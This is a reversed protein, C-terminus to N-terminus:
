IFLSSFILSFTKGVGSSGRVFLLVKNTITLPLAKLIKTCITKMKECDKKIQIKGGEGFRERDLSNNCILKRDIEFLPPQHGIDFSYSQVGWSMLTEFEDSVDDTPNQFEKEFDDWFEKDKTQKTEETQTKKPSPLLNKPIQKDEPPNRKNRATKTQDKM